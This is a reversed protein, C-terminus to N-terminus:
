AHYVTDTEPERVYMGEGKTVCKYVTRCLVEGREGEEGAGLVCMCACVLGLGKSWVQSGQGKLADRWPETKRLGNWMQM